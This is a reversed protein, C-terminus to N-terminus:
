DIEGLATDLAIQAARVREDAGRSLEAIFADYDTFLDDLYRVVATDVKEAGVKPQDCLGTSFRVNACVYRRAQSGDKRSSVNSQLKGSV